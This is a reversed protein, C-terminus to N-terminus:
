RLLTVHGVYEHADGNKDETRILWVYVDQQSINKGGNVTGDWGIIERDFSGQSKFVMDGWRDYIYFSFNEEDVGIGQPFFLENRGDGDPTFTNPVFIIFDSKITLPHIVVDMCGYQNQVTLQVMYGAAETYTHSTDGYLAIVTDSIGDGYEWLWWVVDPSSADAFNVIPTLISTEPPDLVKGNQMMVFEATPPSQVMQVVTDSCGNSDTVILSVPYVQSGNYQHNPNESNSINQDGFDWNWSSLSVGTPSFANSTFTLEFPDPDCSWSFDAVPSGNVTVTGSSTAAPSCNQDDVTVTYTTTAAPSVNIAQSVEGGPTWTYNYSLNTNGGSATAVLTTTGGDCIVADNVTVTIPSYISVTVSTSAACGNVDEVTVNYTTQALPSVDYTSTDPIGNDWIYTYVPNPGGGGNTGGQALVSINATGGICITTDISPTLVVQTPEQLTISATDICDNLDTLTVSYTGAGLGFATDTTQATSWQFTYPLTGGFPTIAAFGDNGNNCLPDQGVIFPITPGANDIVPLTLMFTCGNADTIVADYTGQVLGTATASTQGLPTGQDDFWEYSYPSTGGQPTVTAQGNADGCSSPSSSGNADLLQPEIITFSQNTDCGNIDSVQVTYAGSSLNTVLMGSGTGSPLWLYMYPQTGGIVSLSIQGDSGGYCSVDYVASSVVIEDPETLVVGDIIQCGNVDIILVNNSGKCLGTANPSIVGSPTWSYTYPPTGNGVMVSATGDCSGFCSVDNYSTIASAMPLPEFISFVQSVVCNNFDEITITFTGGSLGFLFSSGTGLTDGTGDKWTFIFPGTGGSYYVTATGNADGNCNLDTTSVSDIIPGSIDNIIVPETFPCNNGDTLIPNYVGAYVSDLCLGITTNPDNWVITYPIVGGVIAVCASGNQNGCTSSFTNSVFGLPQPQTITVGHTNSCGNLDTITVSVPGACLSDAIFSTQFFPDSWLYTYPFMGGSVTVFAEGNCASNCRVNAQSMVVTMAPPEAIIATAIASCGNNDSITVTYTGACLNTVQDIIQGNSWLYTYPAVGGTISSQAYGDCLGNCSIDSFSSISAVLDAPEGIIASSSSTCGNDDTVTIVYNSACLSDAIQSTQVPITNWSYFYPATGGFPTVTASGDCIGGCLADAEVVSLVLSAPESLTVAGVAPCGNADTINVTVSGACLGAATITTQAGPDTWLYTYPGTGGSVSVTGLGNCSGNCSPDSGTTSVVFANPEDITVSIASVCGNFDTVTVTILGSPLNVAIANTQVPSTNWSYNYPPTGDNVVVTATGDSGGPCSIDTSDSMIAIPGNANQVAGSGTALCGTADTVTVNYNNSQLNNCTSSTCGNDWSYTFPGVGNTLVATASGDSQNCSATVTTVNVIVPLPQNIVISTSSTCGNGDYVTVNYTGACLGFATPTTQNGPDDWSYTYSGTGGGATVTSSGDCMGDCTADTGAISLSLAPPETITVSDVVSILNADTVTVYYIGACLGAVNQTTMGGTWIYSYPSNGGSVTLTASGNCIGNCLLNVGSLLTNIPPPETIIICASSTCGVADTITVCFTDACLGTAIATTQALPDDWLYTYPLTGTTLTASAQGDCVNFGSTNSILTVVANGGPLNNVTVNAVSSCGNSDTVNVTYNGGPITNACATVQNLTDNWLYTYPTTGGSAVVCASGNALNCSADTVTTTLALPQPENIVVSVVVTCLNLDTVTVTYNGASLNTIDESVDTNSWLFNYPVTGGSPTLDASGDSGGNCGIDTGVVTGTLVPPESITVSATAICGQADTITATYNIGACLDSLTLATTSNGPNDWSYTYPSVGGSVSVTANGNCLGFCSADAFVTVVANLLPPETVTVLATALCGGADTISVDYTGACLGTAIATTQSLPDSWLYTYPALGGTISATAQGDCGQNCTVNNNLTISAVGGGGVDNVSVSGAQTCGNADTVSLLYTGSPLNTCSSTVCGSNWLYTYPGTGGSITVSTSGDSLGCSADNASLTLVMAAPETVTYSGTIICGGADTVTVNVLGACLGVATATTQFGPDDWLYTYPGTGGSPSAVATGTCSGNCNINTGTVINTLAAPESITVNIIVLCGNVDTITVTYTGACLGSIDETTETNSWTFTYPSTGGNPSLNAAGDCAGVCSVDTGVVAGGPEPYVNVTLFYTDSCPGNTVIQTVVYTGSSAYTHSPNELSSTGADGFNWSYTVGSTGTNTFVFNNGTLCQNGNYTFGAAALGGPNITTTSNFTNQETCGNADVVTVTYTGPCINTQSQGVGVGNNWTFTFPGTGGTVSAFLQGDCAGSCSEDLPIAFLDIPNPQLVDITATGICGNADTVNVTYTGACVNVQNQGSGLGPWTYTYPATGGSSTASVTGDCGNYCNADTSSPTVTINGGLDIITFNEIATNCGSADTVTVSYSGACLGIATANTQANPDNWIYTYPAVGGSPTVTATGDCMGCAVNSFSTTTTMTGSPTCTVCSTTQFYLGAAVFVWCDGGPPTFSYNATTQGATVTTAAVDFNWFNQPFPGGVGNLVTTHNPGVNNQLDGAMAFATGTTSNGCATFGSLTQSNSGGITVLAGDAIVLTGQYTATPDSYIIFLTFGDVPGGGSSINITYNGNGTVSATVDARFVRTGGVSWCKDPGTGILNAAYGATNGLPETVTCTAANNTSSESWWVYAQILNFCAPLCSINVSSPFGPGPSPSYRTATMLAAACYNLGCASYNYMQGLFGNGDMKAMAGISDPTITAGQNYQYIPLAKQASVMGIAFCYIIFSLLVKHLIIKNIHNLICM